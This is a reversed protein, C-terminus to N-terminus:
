QFLRSKGTDPDLEPYIPLAIRKSLMEPKMNEKGIEESTRCSIRVM